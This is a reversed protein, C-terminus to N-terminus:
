MHMPILHEMLIEGYEVMEFLRPVLSAYDGKHFPSICEVSM